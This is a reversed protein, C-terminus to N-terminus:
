RFAAADAVVAGRVAHVLQGAHEAAALWLLDHGVLVAHGGARLVGRRRRAAPRALAARSRLTRPDIGSAAIGRERVEREAQRAVQRAYLPRGREDLGAPAIWGRQKWKRVTAPTVGLMRGTEATTLLGDGRGPRMIVGPVRFAGSRSRARPMLTKGPGAHCGLGPERLDVRRERRLAGTIRRTARAGSICATM